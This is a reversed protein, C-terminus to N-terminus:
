LTLTLETRNNTVRSRRVNVPEGDFTMSSVADVAGIVVKLPAEGSVNLQDGARQLSAVLRTGTADTVQVWCNEIFSMTLVAKPLGPETAEADGAVVTEVDDGVVVTPDSPSQATNGPEPEVTLDTSQGPVESENVALTQETVPAEASVETAPAVDSGSEALEQASQSQPESEVEPTQEESEPLQEEPQPQQTEPQPMTAEPQSPVDQGPALVMKWAAFAIGCLVAVILLAKAVQRKKRRRREIDILPNEQEQKAREERLPALEVDLSEIMANADAKVQKAYGRVYGKLFLESDIQEYACDEIAQIISVRLHQADAVDKQSLGLQERAKRLQQGVPEGAAPQQPDDSDM